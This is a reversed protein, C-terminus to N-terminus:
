RSMRWGGGEEELGKEMMEGRRRVRKWGRRGKYGEGRRKIRRKV